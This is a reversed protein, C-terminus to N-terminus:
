SWFGFTSDFFSLKPPPFLFTFILNQFFSYAFSLFSQNVTKILFLLSFNSSSFSLLCAKPDFSFSSSYCRVLSNLHFNLLIM